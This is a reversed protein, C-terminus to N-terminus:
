PVGLWLWLGGVLICFLAMSLARAVCALQMKEFSGAPASSSPGGVVFGRTVRRSVVGCNETLEAQVRTGRDPM